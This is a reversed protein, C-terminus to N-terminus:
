KGGRNEKEGTTQVIVDECLGAPAANPRPVCQLARARMLTCRKSWYSGTLAQVNYCGKGVVIM